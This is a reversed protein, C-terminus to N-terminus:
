NTSTFTVVFTFNTNASVPTGSATCSAGYTVAKNSYAGASIGTWVSQAPQAAGGNVLTMTGVGGAVAVTLTIDNGSPPSAVQATVKLATASNHSLNLAAATDSAGTLSNSGATGSLSIGAGNTVSLENIASLTLSINATGSTAARAQPSFAASLALLAVAVRFTRM